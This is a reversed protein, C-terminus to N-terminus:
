RGAASAPPSRPTGSPRNAPRRRSPPRDTARSEASRRASPGASARGRGSRRSARGRTRSVVDGVRPAIAIVDDAGEVGVQREVLEQGLVDRAVQERLRPAIRRIPRVLRERRGPEPPEALRLVRRDIRPRLVRVPDVVLDVHEALRHEPQRHRTGAAVVVLEVRDRRLVVVRQEAHQRTRAVVAGVDVVRGRGHLQEVLQPLTAASRGCATRASGSRRSARCPLRTRSTRAIAPSERQSAHPRANRGSAPSPNGACRARSCSARRASRDGVKVM